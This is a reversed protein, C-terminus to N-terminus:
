PALPEKESKPNDHIEKKGKETDDTENESFDYSVEPEPILTDAFDRENKLIDRQPNLWYQISDLTDAAGKRHQHPPNIDEIEVNEKGNVPPTIEEPPVPKDGNVDPPAIVEPNKKDPKEAKDEKVPKEAKDPIEPVVAPKNIVPKNKDPADVAQTATTVAPNVPAIDDKNGKDPKPTIKDIDPKKHSHKDPKGQHVKIKVDMKPLEKEFSNLLSKNESDNSGSVYVDITDGNSIYGESIETQLIENTATLKDMGKVSTKEIIEKGDDTDSELCIVKGSKNLKMSINSDSSITVVSYTKLNRAYYSYGIGTILAICAVASSVFKIVASINRECYKDNAMIFPNTVLQGVEYNKNAAFIFRSEEDMLVAYGKCCQMVTYKM